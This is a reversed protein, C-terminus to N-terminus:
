TEDSKDIEDAYAKKRLVRRVYALITLLAASVFLIEYLHTSLYAFWNINNKLHDQWQGELRDFTVGFRTAVAADFDYGQRLLELFDLVGQPSYTRSM